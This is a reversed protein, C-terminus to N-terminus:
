SYALNKFVAGNQVLEAYTGQEAIRGQDLVYIVDANEVTSLRHAVIITTKGKRLEDMNHQVQRETDADLASMAEGMILIESDALLARALAIRQRQGGSLTMGREGVLSDFGEPMSMITDYLQVHKCVEKLAEDTVSRGFTINNRITDPFMYPEQFVISVKNCWDKRQIQEM